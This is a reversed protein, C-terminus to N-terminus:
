MDNSTPQGDNGNPAEDPAVADLEPDDDVLQSGISMGSSTPISAPYEDDEEEPQDQPQSLRLEDRSFFHFWLVPKLQGIVPVTDQFEVWQGGAVAERHFIPPILDPSARHVEGLSALDDFM